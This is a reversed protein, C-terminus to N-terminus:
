EDPTRGRLVVKEVKRLALTHPLDTDSLPLVMVTEIGLLKGGLVDTFLQDGVIVCRSASSGCKGMARWFAFPLPKIAKSVLDFGLESAVHSVHGHWNNSVLCVRFGHDLVDRAWAKLDDPVYDADRPLLTNDLDLLLADKGRAVLADLDIDRVSKLYHDPFPM